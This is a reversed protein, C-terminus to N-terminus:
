DKPLQGRHLSGIIFPIQKTDPDLWFGVVTSGPMYNATSGAKNLSPTNNMVCHAWPLDKDPIPKDGINHYGHVIVKMKGSENPDRVDRIEGVWFSSGIGTAQETM